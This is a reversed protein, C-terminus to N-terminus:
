YLIMSLGMHDMKHINRKPICHAPLVVAATKEGFMYRGSYDERLSAVVEGERNNIRKVMAKATSLKM